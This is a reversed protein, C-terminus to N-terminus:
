DVTARLAKILRERTVVNLRSVLVRDSRLGVTTMIQERDGRSLQEISDLLDAVTMRESTTM